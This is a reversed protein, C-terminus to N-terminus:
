PERFRWWHRIHRPSRSINNSTASGATLETFYAVIEAYKHVFPSYFNILVLLSRVQRKIKLVQISVIMALLSSSEHM